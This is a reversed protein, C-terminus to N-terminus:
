RKLVKDVFDYHYRTEGTANYSKIRDIVKGSSNVAVIIPFSKIGYKKGLAKNAVTQKETLLEKNRPFDVYLFVFKKSYTKFEASNFFDRKLAKCPPCWDSGTFLMLIPKNQKKAKKQAVEFNTEWNINSHSKQAFLVVSFFLAVVILSKKM